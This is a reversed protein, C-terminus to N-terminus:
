LIDSMHKGTPHEVHACIHSYGESFKKLPETRELPYLGTWKVLDWRTMESERGVSNGASPHVAQFIRDFGASGWSVGPRHKRLPPCEPISRKRGMMESMDNIRYHFRKSGKHAQPSTNISSNISCSCLSTSTIPSPVGLMVTDTASLGPVGCLLLLVFM